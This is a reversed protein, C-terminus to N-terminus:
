KMETLCGCAYSILRKKEQSDRKDTQLAGAVSGLFTSFFLKKGGQCDRLSSFISLAVVSSIHSSDPSQSLVPLPAHRARCIGLFFYAACVILLSVSRKGKSGQHRLCCLLCPQECATSAFWLALAPSHATARWYGGPCRQCLYKNLYGPLKPTM